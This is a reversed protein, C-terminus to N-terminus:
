LKLLPVVFSAFVFSSSSLPSVCAFYFVFILFYGPSHYVPESVKKPKLYARAPLIYDAPGSYLHYTTLLIVIIIVCSTLRNARFVM